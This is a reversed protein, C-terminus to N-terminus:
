KKMYTFAKGMSRSFENARRKFEELHQPVFSKSTSAELEALDYLICKGEHVGVHRWHVEEDNYKLNKSAFVNLVNEIKEIFGEREDKPVPDFLPMIVCHRKNLKEGVVNLNPYILNFNNVETTASQRGKEEFDKDTLYTDGYFRQVYMKIAYEKCDLDVAHFVKSTSGSGIVGVVYYKKKSSKNLLTRRKQNSSVTGWSYSDESLEFCRRADGASPPTFRTISKTSSRDLGQLGCLIASYLVRTLQSSNYKTTSHCFKREADAEFMLQQSGSPAQSKLSSQAQLCSDVNILNPPLPTKDVQDLANDSREVSLSSGNTSVAEIQGRGAALAQPLSENLWTVHTEEFSLLVVFPAKHGFSQM